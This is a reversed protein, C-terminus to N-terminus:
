EQNPQYITKGPTQLSPILLAASIVAAGVGLWVWKNKWWKQQVTPVASTVDAVAMEPETALAITKGQSQWQGNRLM